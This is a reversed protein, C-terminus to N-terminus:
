DDKFNRIFEIASKHVVENEKYYPKFSNFKDSAQKFMDKALDTKLWDILSIQSNDRYLDDLKMRIYHESRESKIANPYPSFDKPLLHADVKEFVKGFDMDTQGYVVRDIQAIAMMRGCLYCPELTTYVTHGKLSNTKDKALYGNIAKAESHNVLYNRGAFVISNDKVLISGVNGRGSQDTQWDNYVLTYAALTFIEDREKQRKDIPRSNILFLILLIISIVGVIALLLILNTM